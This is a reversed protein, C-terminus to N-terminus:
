ITTVKNIHYNFKKLMKYHKDHVEKLEKELWDESLNSWTILAQEWDKETAEIPYERLQRDFGKADHDYWAYIAPMVHVPLTLEICNEKDVIKLMGSGENNKTYIPFTDVEVIEETTRKIQM